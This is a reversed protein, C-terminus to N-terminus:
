QAPVSDIIDVTLGPRPALAALSRCAPCYGIAQGCRLCVSNDFFLMNECGCRFTRM